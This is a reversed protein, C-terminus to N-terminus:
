ADRWDLYNLVQRATLMSGFEPARYKELRQLEHQLLEARSAVLTGQSHAVTSTWSQAVGPYAYVRTPAAALRSVTTMFARVIHFPPAIVGIDGRHGVGYAAVLDAESGTNVNGGVNFKEIPIWDWLNLARLLEVSHDFGEYGHGPDGEAIGLRTTMGAKAMEVARLFSSEENDKTNSYIYLLALPGRRPDRYDCLIRQTLLLQDELDEASLTTQRAM